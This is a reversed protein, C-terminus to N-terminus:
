NRRSASIADGIFLVDLRESKAFDQAIPILKKCIPCTQSVFLLLLAKGTALRGGVTIANGALRMSKSRPSPEGVGPGSSSLLAGAPAVREHLVGVQRALAWVALTLCIVVIWLLVLTITVPERESRPRAPPM